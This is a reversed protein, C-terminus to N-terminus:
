AGAPAQPASNAQRGPLPVPDAVKRYGLARLVELVESWTPFPRRNARKYQDVAKMFALDEESYNRECTVPDVGRRKPPRKDQLDARRGTREARPVVPRPAPGKKLRWYRQWVARVPRGLKEAIQATSVHAEYSQRLFADDAATWFRRM